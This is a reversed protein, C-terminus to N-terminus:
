LYLLQYCHLPLNNIIVKYKYLNNNLIIHAYIIIPKWNDGNRVGTLPIVQSFSGDNSNSKTPYNAYNTQIHKTQTTDSDYEFFPKLM